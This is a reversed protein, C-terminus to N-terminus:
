PLVALGTAPVWAGGDHAYLPADIWATGDHYALTAASTAPAVAVLVATWGTEEPWRGTRPGTPGSAAPEEAAVIVFEWPTPTGGIPDMTPPVTISERANDSTVIWVLVGGATANVGPVVIEESYGAASASAPPAALDAGRVVTCHWAHWCRATTPNDDWTLALGGATFPAVWVPQWWFAEPEWEIPPYRTSAVPLWEDLTPAALPHEIMASVVLLDGTRAEPPPWVTASAGEVWGSDSFAVVEAGM